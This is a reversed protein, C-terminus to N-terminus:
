AVGRTPGRVRAAVELLEAARQEGIVMALGRERLVALREFLTARM